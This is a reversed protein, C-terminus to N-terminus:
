LAVNAKTVPMMLAKSFVEFHEKGLLAEKKM